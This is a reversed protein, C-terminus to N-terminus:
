PNALPIYGSKEVISQGEHGLLWDFLQYATSGAELDKRKVVYAESVLPYARSGISARDPYVGDIACSTVNKGYSMQEKFFYVSYGIGDEDMSLRNIPGMMGYLIMEHAPIIAEDSMVLSKMLEQSGSNEERQYASINTDRGGVQSWRTIEGTYIDRIQDVTLSKVSNNSNLLFVFADLAVPEAVLEVNRCGAMALEDESPPRAVLILDAKKDLLNVYADHTGFHCVREDIFECTRANAPTRVPFLDREYTGFFLDDNYTNWEYPVGLLECAILVALPHTSTSGDVVPYNAISIGLDARTLNHRESINNDAEQRERACGSILVISILLCIIVLVRNKGHGSM